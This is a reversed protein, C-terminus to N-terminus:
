RCSTNQSCSLRQCNWTKQQWTSYFIRYHSKKSPFNKLNQILDTNAAWGKLLFLLLWWSLSVCVGERGKRQGTWFLRTCNMAIRKQWLDEPDAAPLFLILRLLCWVLVEVPVVPILCPCSTLQEEQLPFVDEEALTQFVVFIELAIAHPWM